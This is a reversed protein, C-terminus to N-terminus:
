RTEEERRSAGANRGAQPPPGARLTAALEELESRFRESFYESRGVLWFRDEDWDLAVERRYLLLRWVLGILGITFGAILLGGGRESVVIGAVWYRLEQLVLTRDDFAASDGPRMEGDHLLEGGALVEIRLATASLEERGPFRAGGALPHIVVDLRGEELPVIEPLGTRARVPVAVRDVSFGRGDQLWLVASLGAEQVLLSAPGWRVPHNIRGRREVSQAGAEFRFRAGLHLPRGEVLKPEVEELGFRLPPPGGFPPSRLIEQYRGDFAQGEQLVYRGVFRTYYIAVGGACLLFFSLHFLLFGLPATRHKVGWFTREGVRGARYGFGRLTDVVHELSWAAPLEAGLSEEMRAWTRLGEEKRPRLRIRRWTPGVRQVLVAGLNLLFLGLVGLFLPSTSLRGFRLTELLFRRTASQGVLKAFREEGLVAAQPVVVNVLLLAAVLCLLTV